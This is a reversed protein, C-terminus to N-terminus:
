LWSGHYDGNTTLENGDVNIVQGSAIMVDEIAFSIFVVTPLVYEKRKVVM